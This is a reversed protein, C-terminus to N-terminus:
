RPGDEETRPQSQLLVTTCSNGGPCMEEGFRAWIGEDGEGNGGVTLIESSNPRLRVVETPFRKM